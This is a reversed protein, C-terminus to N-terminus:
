TSASSLANRLSATGLSCVATSAPCASAFHRMSRQRFGLSRLVEHAVRGDGVLALHHGRQEAGSDRRQQLRRLRSRALADEVQGAAGAHDRPADRRLQARCAGHEADVQVRRHEGDRALLAPVLPEGDVPAFAVGLRQGVRVAAEIEHQALLAQLEERVPGGREGLDAAHEGRAPAERRVDPAPEVQMRQERREVLHEDAV